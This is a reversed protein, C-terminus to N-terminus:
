QTHDSHSHLLQYPMPLLPQLALGASQVDPTVYSARVQETQRREHRKREEVAVLAARSPLGYEVYRSRFDEVFNEVSYVASCYPPLHRDDDPNSVHRWGGHAHASARSRSNTHHGAGAYPHHRRGEGQQRMRESRESPLVVEAGVTLMEYARDIPPSPNMPLESYMSTQWRTQDYASSSILERFDPNIALLMGFTLDEYLKKEPSPLRMRPMMGHLYQDIALYMAHYIRKGDPDDGAVAVFRADNLARHHPRMVAVYEDLDTGEPLVAERWSAAEKENVSGQGIIQEVHKIVVGYRKTWLETCWAGYMLLLGVDEAIWSRMQDTVRRTEEANQQLRLDRIRDVRDITSEVSVNSASRRLHRSYHDGM